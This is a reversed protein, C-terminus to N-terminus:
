EDYHTDAGCESQASRGAPACSGCTNDIGDDCRECGRDLDYGIDCSEYTPATCNYCEFCSKGGDAAHCALPCIDALTPVSVPRTYSSGEQQQQMRCKSCDFSISTPSEAPTTAVYEGCGCDQDTVRM